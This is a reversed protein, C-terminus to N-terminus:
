PKFTGVNEATVDEKFGDVIEIAPEIDTCSKASPDYSHKRNQKDIPIETSVFGWHLHDPLTAKSRAENDCWEVVIKDNNYCVWQAM